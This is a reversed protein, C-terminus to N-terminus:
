RAEDDFTPAIRQSQDRLGELEKDDLFSLGQERMEARWRRIFDSLREPPKHTREYDDHSVLVAVPKGRRTIRVTEGAEVQQLLRALHTKAEAVSVESM